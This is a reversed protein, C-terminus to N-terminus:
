WVAERAQTEWVAVEMPDYRQELLRFAVEVGIWWGYPGFRHRNVSGCGYGLVVTDNSDLVWCFKNYWQPLGYSAFRDLVADFGEYIEFIGSKPNPEESDYLEFRFRPGRPEYNWMNAPLRCPVQVNTAFAVPETQKRTSKM